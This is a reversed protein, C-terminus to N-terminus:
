DGGADDRYRGGGARQLVARLRRWPGAYHALRSRESQSPRQRARRYEAARTELEAKAARIAQLRAERRALEEPINVGAPLPEADAAAARALLEEVEAQLQAEIKQAYGYSLASHRSANAHVKTGDLAVTGLKLLKMQRAISLVQM